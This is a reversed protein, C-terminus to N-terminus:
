NIASGDLHLHVILAYSDWLFIEALSNIGEECGFVGPLPSPQAQVDKVADHGLIFPHEIHLALLLSPVAKVM